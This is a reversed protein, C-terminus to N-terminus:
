FHQVHSPLNQCLFSYNQELSILKSSTEEIAKVLNRTEQQYAKFCSLSMIKRIKPSIKCFNPIKGNEYCTTLFSLHKRTIYQKEINRRALVTSNQCPSRTAQNNQLETPQCM